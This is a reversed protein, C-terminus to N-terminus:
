WIADRIIDYGNMAFVENIYDFIVSSMLYSKCRVTGVFAFM